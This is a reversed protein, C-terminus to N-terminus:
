APGSSGAARFLIQVVLANKFQNDNLAGLTQTLLLPALRRSTLLPM